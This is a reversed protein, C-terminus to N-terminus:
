ALTGSSGVPQYGHIKQSNPDINVLNTLPPQLKWAQQPSDTFHKINRRGNGVRTVSGLKIWRAVPM